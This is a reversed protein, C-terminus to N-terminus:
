SSEGQELAERLVSTADDVTHIRALQEDTLDLVVSYQQEIEAILWTLELSGVMDDVAEPARDGFAALMGVVASKDLVPKDLVTEKEPVTETGKSFGTSQETVRAETM